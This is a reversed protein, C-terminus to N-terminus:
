RVYWRRGFHLDVVFVGLTARMVIGLGFDGQEALLMVKCVHIEEYLIKRQGALPLLVATYFAGPKTEEAICGKLGTGIM